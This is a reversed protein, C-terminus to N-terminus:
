PDILRPLTVINAAYFPGSKSDNSVLKHEASKLVIEKPQM